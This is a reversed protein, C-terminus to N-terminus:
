GGLSLGSVVGNIWCLVAGFVAGLVAGVVLRINARTDKQTGIQEQQQTVWESLPGTAVSPPELINGTVSAKLEEAIANRYTMLVDACHELDRGYISVAWENTVLIAGEKVEAVLASPTTVLQGLIQRQLNHSLSNLEASQMLRDKTLQDFRPYGTVTDQLGIVVMGLPHNTQAM